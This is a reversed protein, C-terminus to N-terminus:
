ASVQPLGGTGSYPGLFVAFACGIVLTYKAMQEELSQGGFCCCLGGARKEEMKEEGAERAKSGPSALSYSYSSM